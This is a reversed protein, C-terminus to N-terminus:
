SRSCLYVIQCYELSLLRSSVKHSSVEAEQRKRANPSPEDVAVAKAPTLLCM